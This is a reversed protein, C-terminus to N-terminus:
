FNKLHLSIEFKFNISNLCFVFFLFFPFFAFISRGSIRRSTHLPCQAPGHILVAECARSRRIPAASFSPVVHENPTLAYSVAWYGMYWGSLGVWSACAIPTPTVRSGDGEGTVRVFDSGGKLDRWGL